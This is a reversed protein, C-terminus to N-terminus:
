YNSEIFKIAYEKELLVGDVEVLKPKERLEIDSRQLYKLSNETLNHWQKGGLKYQIPKGSLWKDFMEVRLKKQSLTYMM